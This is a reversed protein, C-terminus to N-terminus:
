TPSVQFLNREGRCWNSLLFHCLRKEILPKHEPQPVIFYARSTWASYRFCWVTLMLTSRLRNAICHIQKEHNVRGLHQYIVLSKRKKAFGVLDDMFAYKTGEESTPSQRRAIGTDPNLFIIEAKCTANFACKLWGERIERKIKNSKESGFTLLKDYYITNGPLIGQQKFSQQAAHITRNDEFVLSKLVSYLNADCMQFQRVNEPTNSLYGIHGGNSPENCRSYQVIGLRLPRDIDKSSIGTLWRLLGINAFDGVNGVYRDQM